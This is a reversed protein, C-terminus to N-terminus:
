DESGTQGVDTKAEGVIALTDSQPLGQGQFGNRTDEHAIYCCVAGLITSKYLGIGCWISQVHTVLLTNCFHLLTVESALDYFANYCTSKETKTWKSQPFGAAMNSPYELLGTFFDVHISVLPEQWCGASVQWGGSRVVKTNLNELDLGASLLGLWCRLQFCM